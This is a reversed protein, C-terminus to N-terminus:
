TSADTMVVVKGKRDSLACFRQGNMTELKHMLRIPKVGLQGGWVRLVCNKRIM